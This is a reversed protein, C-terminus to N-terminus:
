NRNFFTQMDLYKMRNQNLFLRGEMGILTPSFKCAFSTLLGQMNTLEERLTCLDRWCILEAQTKTSFARHVTIALLHLKCTYYEMMNHNYRYAAQTLDVGMGAMGMSM